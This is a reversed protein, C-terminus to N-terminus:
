ADEPGMSLGRTEDKAGAKGYLEFDTYVSSIAVRAAPPSNWQSPGGGHHQQEPSLWADSGVRSVKKATNYTAYTEGTGASSEGDRPPANRSQPFVCRWAARLIPMGLVLNGVLMATSTERVCWMFWVPDTSYTFVAVKTLIACLMVFVGMSFLCILLLKKGIKMKLQSILTVPILLLVLDTSLNMTIQLINYNKWTLCEMNEPELEMYDSFPRCWGGYLSVIVAVYAFGTYAAVSVWTKRYHGFLTLRNYLLLLCCKNGWLTTQMSTESLINMIGMRRGVAAYENPTLADFDTSADINFYIYLASISTTYILVIIAMLIDDVTIKDFFRRKRVLYQSIEYRGGRDGPLVM